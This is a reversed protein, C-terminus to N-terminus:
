IGERPRLESPVPVPCEVTRKKLLRFEGDAREYDEGEVLHSSSRDPVTVGFGARPAWM